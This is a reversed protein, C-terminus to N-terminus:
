RSVVTRQVLITTGRFQWSSLKYEVQKRAKRPSEDKKRSENHYIQLLRRWARGKRARLVAESLVQEGDSALRKGIEEWSLREVMRMTILKQDAVKLQKLAQQLQEVSDRRELNTRSTRELTESVEPPQTLRTRRKRESRSLERIIDYSTKRIWFLPQSIEYGSNLRNIGLSYAESIIYTPDYYTDLNFQRLYRKVFVPLRRTESTNAEILARFPNDSVAYSSKTILVGAGMQELLQQVEDTSRDSPVVNSLAETAGAISESKKQISTEEFTSEQQLVDSLVETAHSPSTPIPQKLRRQESWAVFATGLCFSFGLVFSSPAGRAILLMMTFGVFVAITQQILSSLGAKAEEYLDVERHNGRDM